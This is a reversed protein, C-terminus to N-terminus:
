HIRDNKRWDAANLVIDALKDTSSGLESPLFRERYSNLADFNYNGSKLSDTLDKGNTFVCGPMERFLDINVGNKALYEDNDFLYYLTKKNLVAGELAIASYDTVLWDCVTLMEDSSFEPCTFIRDNDSYTMEQNPHKKVVLNFAEFDFTSVLESIDVNQNKRFTPAYLVVPKENLNPYAELVKRKTEEETNILIDIRPLGINRLKDETTGFSACYFKNWASGGAIIIDYGKHMNLLRATKESRGFERGITQYGSQKIKGFAHWMQIVTLSDKHKLMSVAPWYADLVCVSSTALLYMSKLMAFAFLIKAKIGRDARRCVARINLKPDKELLRSKLMRFDPSLTNSQRSLFVINKENAPLLKLAWYVVSLFAKFVTVIVAM